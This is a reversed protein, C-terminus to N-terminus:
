LQPLSASQTQIYTKYVYVAAVSVLAIILYPKIKSFM